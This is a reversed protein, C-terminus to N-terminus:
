TRGAAVGCRTTYDNPAGRPSETVPSSRLTRQTDFSLADPIHFCHKLVGLGTSCSSV